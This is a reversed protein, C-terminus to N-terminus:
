AASADPFGTNWDKGEAENRASRGTGISFHAVTRSLQQAEEALTVSAATTQEVMAANQQTSQDLQGIATNIESIGTSQERASAAITSVHGSIEVVSQVIDRLAEGAKDVLGVGRNVQRGSESILDAIERAADSSRQSLARVESAVVAFGRGAEGARAAEVGANLALLNTQFAIDDIVSVITSIKRSSQEIAGMTQVAERVVSGSAQASARATEVIRAAEGAGDAASEVSATLETLAAASQELMAATQETRRSLDEAARSIEESGGHISDVSTRIAGIVSELTAVAANFDSRLQDYGEGFAQDIQTRLDGQALRRLGNALESVVVSQVADRAQRDADAIRRMEDRKAAEAAELDRQRQDQQAKQAADRAMQAAQEQQAAREAEIQRAQNARDEQELRAKEVLTNRFVALAAVMAGIEGPSHKLRDVASLEGKALRTTARATAALPRVIFLYSLIPAILLIAGGIVAVLFFLWRTQDVEATIEAGGQEIAVLEQRAVRIATDVSASVFAGTQGSVEAAQGRAALFARQAAAIGTDASTLQLLSRVMGVTAPDQRALLREIAANQTALVEDVVALEADSGSLAAQFATGVAQKIETNLGIMDQVISTQSAILDSVATSNKEAAQTALDSIRAVLDRQALTLAKDVLDVKALFTGLNSSSASPAIVAQRTLATQGIAATAAPKQRLLLRAQKLVEAAPDAAPRLADNRKMQRIEDALQDLTLMGKAHLKAAEAPATQLGHSIAASSLTALNARAQMALAVTVFEVEVLQKLSDSVSLSSQEGLVQMAAQAAQQKRVMEADIQANIRILAAVMQRVRDQRQFATTLTAVPADMREGMQELLPQLPDRITPGMPGIRTLADKLVGSFHAHHQQLEAADAALMYDALEARINTFAVMMTVGDRVAPVRQSALRTMQDAISHTVLTGILLAAATTSAMAVLILVIKTGVSHLIASVRRSM